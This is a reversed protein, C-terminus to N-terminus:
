PRVTYAYQLPTLDMKRPCWPHLVCHHGGTAVIKKGRGQVKIGHVIFLDSAKPHALAHAVERRTLFVTEGKGRTGKVEVYVVKGGRACQLDYPKTAHTDTVGYGLSRYHRKAKAMAYNEIARREHPSSSFGQGAHEEAASEVVALAADEAEATPGDTVLNPGDYEQVFRLLDDLWRRHHGGATAAYTVNSHGTADKGFPVKQRRLRSPLLWANGARTEINFWGANKGGRKAQWQHERHISAHRYWGVLFQGPESASRAFFLVLVDKAVDGESAPDVRRLDISQCAVYGLHHSGIRAFNCVEHGINKLNYTGGGIPKADNPQPGNYFTMWGIRALLVKMDGLKAM